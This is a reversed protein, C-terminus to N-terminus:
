TREEQLLKSLEGSNKLALTEDGGGVFRGNIFVRPVTKAGTMKQMIDRIAPGDKDQDLEVVHANAGVEELAQRAKRCYPCTTTSFVLVKHQSRLKNVRERVGQNNFSRSSTGGM